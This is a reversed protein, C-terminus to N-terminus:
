GSRSSDRQVPNELLARIQTDRELAREHPESLQQRFEPSLPEDFLAEFSRRVQQEVELAAHLRADDHVPVVLAKLSYWGERLVGQLSPHDSPRGGYTAIQAQTLDIVLAHEAAWTDFLQQLDSAEADAAFRRYALQGDECALLLHNLQTITKDLTPM